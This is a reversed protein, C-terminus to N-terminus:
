VSERRDYAVFAEYCVTLEATKRIIFRVGVRIQGCLGSGSSLTFKRNDSLQRRHHQSLTERVADEQGGETSIPRSYCKRCALTKQNFFHTQSSTVEFIPIHFRLHM